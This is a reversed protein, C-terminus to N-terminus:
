CIHESQSAMVQANLHLMKKACAKCFVVHRNRELIYSRLDTACAVLDAQNLCELERSELPVGLTTFLRVFDAKRVAVMDPIDISRRYPIWLNSERLVMSAPHDVSNLAIYRLNAERDGPIFGADCFSTATLTAVKQISESDAQKLARSVPPVIWLAPGGVGLDALTSPVPPLSVSTGPKVHKLLSDAFYGIPDCLTGFDDTVSDDETVLLEFIEPGVNLKEMASRLADIRFQEVADAMTEPVQYMGFHEVFPVTADYRIM